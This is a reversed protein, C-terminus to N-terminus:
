WVANPYSKQLFQMEALIFGLHETHAGRKGGNQMWGSAPTKLTAEALTAGVDALWPGRLACPDAGIGGALAAADVADAEFMEGTFAWLDDVAAQMRAHSEETGDGLRLVWDRSRGHHYTVERSAKAAIDAVRTDRSRALAHLLPLHWADFFYQRAMVCAFDGNPREVLLLNRYDHADRLYALKDAGRGKGEMEGALALWLRAQGLLDLSVNGLALEEELAPASGLLESLRHSLVLCNDGLRLVYEFQDPQEM